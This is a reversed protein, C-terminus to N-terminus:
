GYHLATAAPDASITQIVKTIFAQEAQSLQKSKDYSIILNIPPYVSELRLLLMTEQNFNSGLKRLVWGEPAIMAGAGSCCLSLSIEASNASAVVKPSVGNEVFLRDIAATSDRQDFRIFPIDKLGALQPNELIERYREEYATGWQFQLLKKHVLIALCNSELSSSKKLASPATHPTLVSLQELEDGLPESSFNLDYQKLESVTVHEPREKITVKCNPQEMTFQAVADTLCPPCDSASISIIIEQTKNVLEAMKREMERRQRLMSEAYKAFYRGCPTLTAPRNQTLLKVDLERELRRIQESLAQQSIRLKAAANRISGSNAVALFYEFSLFNM